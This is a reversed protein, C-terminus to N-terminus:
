PCERPRPMYQVVLASGAKPVEGNLVVKNGTRFYTWDSEPVETGDISVAMTPVIPSRTLVITGDPVEPGWELLRDAVNGVTESMPRCWSWFAGGTASVPPEFIYGATASACGRPVDGAIAHVVFQGSERHTELDKLHDTWSVVGRSDWNAMHVVHLVSDDRLFGDNCQGSGTQDLAKGAMAFHGGERESHYPAKTYSLDAMAEFAESAASAGFSEDIFVEDGVICGDEAVVLAAQVSRGEAAFSKGLRGIEAVFDSPVDGAAGNRFLTFLVDVPRAPGVIERSETLVEGPVGPATLPVSLLESGDSGLAVLRGEAKVSTPTATLELTRSERRGLALPFALDTHLSFGPDGEFGISAIEIPRSGANTLDVLETESPCGMDTVGFTVAEPWAQLEPGNITAKLSVTLTEASAADNEFVLRGEYVGPDDAVLDVSIVVEEGPDLWPQAPPQWSFADADDELAAVALWAQGDCPNRLTVEAHTVDEVELDDVSFVLANPSVALCGEAPPLIPDPEEPPTCGLALLAILTLQRTM